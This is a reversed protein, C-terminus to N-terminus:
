YSAYGGGYMSSPLQVGMRALFRKAEQGSTFLASLKAALMADSQPGSTLRQPIGIKLAVYMALGTSVLEAVILRMDHKVTEQVGGDPATSLVGHGSM